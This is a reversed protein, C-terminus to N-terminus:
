SGPAAVSVLRVLDLVPANMLSSRGVRVRALVRIRELPQLEHVRNLLDPPVAIYVFGASNGPGRALIFPEGEYFDTRIREAHELSIFQVTWEVLHGRFSDPNQALVQPSVDRLVAGSDATVAGLSPAWVWGSTQVRVWNGERSIVNVDAGPRFLAVTDGDPNALLAAGSQGVRNLETGGRAPAPRTRSPTAAPAPATTKAVGSVSVSARWIWGQRRVHIWPGDEGIRDLLMGQNLRAVRDGNPTARLNEGDPPSVSLDHGGRTSAEVSPKWIWGELTVSVWDGQEEVLPMTTGQLVEALVAGGPAARLNERDVTVTATQAALPAACALLALACSLRTM